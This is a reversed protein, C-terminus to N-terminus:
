AVFRGYLFGALFILFSVWFLIKLDKVTKKLIYKFTM